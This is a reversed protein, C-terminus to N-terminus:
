TLLTYQSPQVHILQLLWTAAEPIHHAAFLPLNHVLYKLRTRVVFVMGVGVTFRAYICPDSLPHLQHSVLVVTQVQTSSTLIGPVVLEAEEIECVGENCPPLGIKGCAEFKERSVKELRSKMALSKISLRDSLAIGAFRLDPAVVFVWAKSGFGRM